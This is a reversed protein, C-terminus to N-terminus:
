YSCSRPFNIRMEMGYIIGQSYLLFESLTVRFLQLFSSIYYHIIIYAVHKAVHRGGVVRNAITLTLVPVFSPSFHSHPHWMMVQATQSHFINRVCVEARPSHLPYPQCPFSCLFHFYCKKKFSQNLYTM